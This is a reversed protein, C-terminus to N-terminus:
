VLWCCCSGASTQRCSGECNVMLFYSYVSVIIFSSEPNTFYYYSFVKSKDYCFHKSRVRFNNGESVKWCDRANDRDDRRLNGSFSSLDIENEPEEDLAEIWSYIVTLNLWADALHMWRQVWISRARAKDSYTSLKFIPIAVTVQEEEMMRLVM